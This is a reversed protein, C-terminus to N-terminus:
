VAKGDIGEPLKKLGAIDIVKNRSTLGKRIAIGSKQVRFEKSLLNILAENAEGEVPKTSVRVKLVGQADIGSIENKGANPTLRVNLIM